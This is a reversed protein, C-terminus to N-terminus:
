AAPRTAPLTMPRSSPLKQVPTAPGTTDRGTVIAMGVLLQVARNLQVDVPATTPNTAPAPNAGRILDDNFRAEMVAAQQAQDMPVEVQPVVGWDTAGAKRHVLRGSPLYYYAVTIKLEGSEGALPVVEQVSGKGFSRTGVITARGDDKLAGSTIEAASASQGNVLVVMPFDPLTGADTAYAINEPRNRGKTSVIVGKSVFLDVLKVAENLQGGPNNRLDLILGKMGNKLLNKVVDGVADACGDTFQALRVYGIMPTRNIVYDWEDSGAGVYRWGKVVPLRIDARQMKLTQVKGDEHRLTLSVATGAKGKILKIVDDLKADKAIERGDVKEIVDGARVGAHYAPSGAIPTIITVEGAPKQELNIGVGVFNGGLMQDFRERSAPPVYVTYPDLGSLMGEIAKQRLEDEGVPEVYNDAVQRHIDILTRVFAYDDDRQALSGPLNLAVLLVLAISVFWALKERHPGRMM